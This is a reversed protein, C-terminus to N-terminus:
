NDLWGDFYLQNTTQFMAKIVKWMNPIDYGWSVFEYLEYKESPYPEIVLWYVCIYINVMM